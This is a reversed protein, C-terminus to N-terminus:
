ANQATGSPILLEELKRCDESDGAAALMDGSQMRFEGTPNRMLKGDRQVAVILVGTRRRLDAEALSIGELPCGDPLRIWFIISRFTELQIESLPEGDHDQYHDIRAQDLAMQITGVSVDMGLLARRSMELAEEFGPQIIGNLRHPLLRRAEEPSGARSIVPLDPRVSRVARIATLNEEPNFSTALLIRASALGAAQQIVEHPLDGYIVSLREKEALQFDRYKPEILIYPQEWQRMLRAVERGIPSGGSIIVHGSLDPDPLAIDDKTKKSGFSHKLLDYVPATLSDVAPGIIMTCVTICLILSYAAHSIVGGDLTLRGVVFAMESTPVMGFLMALPIVNRYGGAWTIAALVLTRSLATAAVLSTVLLFNNFLYDVDLMMGISVFFLMAFLDRVPILETLAKKGYPSSSLAIGALFAGFSFSLSMWESVYGTGLATVIVALLYLERVGQSAARKLLLPLFRKGALLILLIGTGGIILQRLALGAGNSLEGMRTALLMLPIVTLDQVISMGIMVRGSLANNMGKGTLTKLIVATSTSVFAIGFVIRAPWNPFWGNRRDLLWALLAATIMTFLVQALTGWVAIRRIPLLDKPSFELGMAFLLLAVGINALSDLANNAALGFGAKFLIGVLVGALIYGLILPQKLRRVIMGGFLGTVVIVLVATVLMQGSNAIIAKALNRMLLEMDTICDALAPDFNRLHKWLAAM